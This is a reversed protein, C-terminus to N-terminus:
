KARDLNSEPTRESSTETIPLLPRVLNSFRKRSRTLPHANETQGREMWISTGERTIRAHWFGDRWGDRGWLFIVDKETGYDRVDWVNELNSSEEVDFAACAEKIRRWMTHDVDKMVQLREKPM